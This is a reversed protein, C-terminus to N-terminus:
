DPSWFWAAFLLASFAAILLISIFQSKMEQNSQVRHWVRLLIEM